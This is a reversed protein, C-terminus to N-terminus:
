LNKLFPTKKQNTPQNKISFASENFGFFIQKVSFFHTETFSGTSINKPQKVGKFLTQFLRSSHLEFEKEMM